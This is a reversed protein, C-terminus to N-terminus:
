EEDDKLLEIIQAKTMDPDVEHGLMEAAEILDSKNMRSYQSPVEAAPEPPDKDVKADVIVKSPAKGPKKDLLEFDDMRMAFIRDNFKFVGGTRKNRMYKANKANVEKNM